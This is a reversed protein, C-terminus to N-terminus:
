NPRAGYRYVKDTFLFDKGQSELLELKKCWKKFERYGTSDPRNYGGAELLEKQSHTKGDLLINWMALIKDKPAKANENLAKLLEEQHDEMTAPQVDVAVGNEQIYELGEQTLSLNGKSKTVHGLEQKLEKMAKRYGTSDTRKYPTKLLVEKEDVEHIGIKSMAFLYSRIIDVTTNANGPTEVLVSRPLNALSRPVLPRRSPPM